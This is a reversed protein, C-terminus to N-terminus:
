GRPFIERGQGAPLPPCGPPDTVRERLYATVSGVNSMLQAPDKFVYKNIRQLIYEAGTDTKIRLTYNIHGHGFEHCEVPTGDFQFGYIAKEM